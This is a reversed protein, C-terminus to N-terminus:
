IPTHFSFILWSDSHDTNTLLLFFVFLPSFHSFNFLLYSGILIQRFFSCLKVSAFNELSCDFLGLARLRLVCHGREIPLVLLRQRKVPLRYWSSNYFIDGIELLNSTLRESLFYHAFTLMVFVMLNIFVNMGQLSLPDNLEFAFLNLAIVITCMLSMHFLILEM